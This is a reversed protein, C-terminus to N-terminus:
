RWGPRTWWVEIRLLDSRGPQPTLTEDVGVCAYRRDVLSAARCRQTMGGPPLGLRARLDAAPHDLWRLTLDRWCGGSGCQVEAAVVEVGAPVARAARNSPVSGEDVALRVVPVVLWLMVLVLVLVAVRIVMARRVRAGYRRGSNGAGTM